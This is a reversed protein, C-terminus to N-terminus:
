SLSSIGISLCLVIYFFWACMYVCMCVTNTCVSFLMRAM